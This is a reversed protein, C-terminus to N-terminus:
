RTGPVRRRGSGARTRRATADRPTRASTPRGARVLPRQRGRALIAVLQEARRADVRARDDDQVVVRRGDAPRDEVRDRRPAGVASMTSSSPTRCRRHATAASPSSAAPDRRQDRGRRGARDEDGVAVVAVLGRQAIAVFAPHAARALLIRGEVVQQRQEDIRGPLLQRDQRGMADHAAEAVVTDRPEQVAEVLQELHSASTPRSSSTARNSAAASAGPPAPTKPRQVRSRRRVASAGPAVRELREQRGAAVGDAREIDCQEADRQLAQGPEIGVGDRGARDAERLRGRLRDIADVGADIARIRREQEFRCRDRRDDRDGAVAVDHRLFRGVEIRLGQGAEDDVRM